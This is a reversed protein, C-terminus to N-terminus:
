ITIRKTVSGIKLIYIGRAAIHVRQTGAPIDKQSILQGLISFIKVSVPRSTTIYVYGEKVNVDLFDIDGIREMVQTRTEMEEWLRQASAQLAYLSITLLIFIFRKM